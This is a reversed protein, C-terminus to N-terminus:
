EFMIKGSVVYCRYGSHVPINEVKEDRLARIFEGKDDQIDCRKGEFSMEWDETLEFVRIGVSRWEGKVIKSEPQDINDGPQDTKGGPQDSKGGLQDTKGGPQDTM